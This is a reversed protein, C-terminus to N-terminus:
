IKIWEEPIIDQTDKPGNPGFWKKPALVKKNKNNNLWAGWWSFSSNALINNECLSMMYLSIYDDEEIFNQAFEFNEKCWKIDDSFVYINEKQGIHEIAQKYYDINQLGHYGQLGVYDGRRVHLSVSNDSIRPYKEYIYEKINRPMSFMDKIDDEHAKFYKESQFYGVIFLDKSNPIPKYHFHPEHYRSIKKPISDITPINRFISDKYKKFKFGQYPLAHGAECVKFETNNKLAHAKAAAIQFMQNGLGGMFKTIIM